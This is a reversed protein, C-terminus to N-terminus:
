NKNKSQRILENAENVFKSHEKLVKQEWPRLDSRDMLSALWVVYKNETHILNALYSRRHKGFPLPERGAIRTDYKEQKDPVHNKCGCYKNDCFAETGMKYWCDPCVSEYPYNACGAIKFDDYACGQCARLGCEPCIETAKGITKTNCKFCPFMKFDSDCSSDSSSVSSSRDPSKDRSM